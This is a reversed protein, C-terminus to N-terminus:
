SPIFESDITRDLDARLRSYDVKAAGRFTALASAAPVFHSRSLPVLEAIPEGNSTVVFTEGGRVARMIRGSENRFERQSIQESM